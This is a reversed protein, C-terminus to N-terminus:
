RELNKPLLNKKFAVYVLHTRNDVRFKKYLVALYAKVSHISLYLKESIERNGYGVAIMKLIRDEVETLKIEKM